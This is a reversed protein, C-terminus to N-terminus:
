QKISYNSKISEPDSGPLVKTALTDKSNPSGSAYNKIESEPLEAIKGCWKNAFTASYNDQGIGEWKGAGNRQETRELCDILIVVREQMIGGPTGASGPITITPAPTTTCNVSGYGSGYCNTTASGITTSYGARGPTAQQNWRAVYEYAIYRGFVSRVNVKTLKENVYYVINDPRNEVMTWEKIKPMGLFDYEERASPPSIFSRICGEFDAAPMCAKRMDETVQQAYSNSGLAIFILLVWVRLLQGAKM